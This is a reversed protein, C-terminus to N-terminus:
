KIRRGTDCDIEIMPLKCSHCQKGSADPECDCSYKEFMCGCLESAHPDCILQTDDNM